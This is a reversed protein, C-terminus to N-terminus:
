ITYHHVVTATGSIGEFVHYILICLILEFVSFSDFSNELAEQDVYAKFDTLDTNHTVKKISPFDENPFLGDITEVLETLMKKYESKSVKLTVSGDENLTIGKFRKKQKMCEVYQKATEEVEAFIYELM